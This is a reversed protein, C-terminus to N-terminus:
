EYDVVIRDLAAGKIFKAVDIHLPNNQYEDLEKQSKFESVLVVDYSSGSKEVNIGVEISEIVDIKEKLGELREKIKVADEEKNKLKWMVIHKM